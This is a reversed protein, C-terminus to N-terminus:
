RVFKIMTFSDGTKHLCENHVVETDGHVHQINGCLECVALGCVKCHGLRRAATAGCHPCYRKPAEETM